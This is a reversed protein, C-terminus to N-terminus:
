AVDEVAEVTVRPAVPPPVAPVLKRVKVLETGRSRCLNRLVSDTYSRPKNIDGSKLRECVDDVVERGFEAGIWGIEWIYQRDMEQGPIGVRIKDKLKGFRNAIEEVLFLFSRTPTKWRRGLDEDDLGDDGPRPGAADGSAPGPGTQHHRTLNPETQDPRTLDPRTTCPNGRRDGPMDPSEGPTTNLGINEHTEAFLKASEDESIVTLWGIEDRSAWDVLRQFLRVDFGTTRAIHSLRLPIGRSTALVGRVSCSSAVSCLACWVGYIAPADDGFEDLMSQYGNSSFSVPWAIWTLTKIKRSEAREFVSEWKTIRLVDM